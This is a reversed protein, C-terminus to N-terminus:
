ILSYYKEPCHFYSCWINLKRIPLGTLPKLNQLPVAGADVTELGKMGQVFSLDVVDVDPSCTLKIRKLDTLTAIPSYDVLWPLKLEIVRGDAIEYFCDRTEFRPNLAELEGTVSLLQQRAERWTPQAYDIPQGSQVWLALLSATICLAVVTLVKAFPLSRRDNPHHALKSLDSIVQSASDYRHQPLTSHLRNIIALMSEPIDFGDPLQARNNKLVGRFVSLTREGGFAQQGTCMAFIVSGLSFLDARHDLPSGAAQEPSMYAPTGMVVGPEFNSPEDIGFALGFDTLKPQLRTEGDICQLLINSPKVDLHVIRKGHAAELGKAIQISYDVTDDPSLAGNKRIHYQLTGDSVLEMVIFPFPSEEVAYIQVVNEHRVAAASRAEKLFRECREESSSKTPTLVKIAVQRALKRDFANFVVGFAGRGILKLFDYHGVRGLSQGDSPELMGLIQEVPNDVQDNASKVTHAMNEFQANELWDSMVLPDSSGIGPM